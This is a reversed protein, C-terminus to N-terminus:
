TFSLKAAMPSPVNADGYARITQLVFKIINELQYQLDDIKQDEIVDYGFIEAFSDLAKLLNIMVPLKQQLATELDKDLEETTIIQGNDQLQEITTFVMDEINKQNSINFKVKNLTSLMIGIACKAQPDATINQAILLMNIFQDLYAQTAISTDKLKTAEQKLQIAIDQSHKITDWSPMYSNFFGWFTNEIYNYDWVSDSM